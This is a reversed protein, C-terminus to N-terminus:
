FCAAWGLVWGTGYDRNWFKSVHSLFRESWTSQAKVARLRHAATVATLMAAKDCLDSM